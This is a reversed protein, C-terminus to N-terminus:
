ARKARKASLLDLLFEKARDSLARKTQATDLSGHIELYAALRRAEDVTFVMNLAIGPDKKTKKAKEVVPKFISDPLKQGRKKAADIAIRDSHGFTLERTGDNVLKHPVNITKTIEGSGLRSIQQFADSWNEFLNKITPHTRILDIVDRDYNLHRKHTDWPIFVNPGLINVWGRALSGAQGKPLQEYFLREDRSKFLRNNGYLDFGPGVDDDRTATTVRCGVLVEITLKHKLGQYELETEFEMRQPRIDVKADNAGSFDYRTNLAPTIKKGRKPFYINISGNRAMLLGYTNQIDRSIKELERPNSYWHAGIPEARLQMLYRTQGRQLGGFEKLAFYPFEYEDVDNLWQEDLHVAVAADGTEAPNWFRTTVNVATALRFIAKKGGTKYSGISFALADTDSHGPVVLNVLKEVPVGGANDEYSLQGTDSDIDIYINLEPASKDPYQKRRRNWADISNDILELLAESRDLDRWAGLVVEKNPPAGARQGLGESQTPQWLAIERALRARFTSEDVADLCYDAVIQDVRTERLLRLKDTHKLDNWDPKATM